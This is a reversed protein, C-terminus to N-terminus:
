QQAGEQRLSIGTLEELRALATEHDALSQWYEEDLHLLDLFSALLAQFDQRNSQYDALGSEFEARTQPLLGGQYITLLKATEEETDYATRLQFAVQQLQSEAESHSRNLEAEAEALEPRQKRSHYIPVRVGISLNYRARFQDPDTRDWSYQVNFDPYFDKHALDVQLKQKQVMQEAGAIDPSQNDAAALLDDFTYPLPTNSLDVAKINPSSQPRGLLQKLQSQANAIELDHMAFDRLLKTRELQARLLDQQTGMGSRYHADAAKEVQKLLEGDGNVISLTTSLYSIRFYAAKVEVLVSRRFSELQQQAVNADQKALEGKLRLKGPYPIEQSVGLGIYSFEDNSYGAFPRPSGVNSQALTFQPDPLTSVQTPVQKAAEWRQRAAEIQPNNKEAEALLEKLPTGPVSPAREQAPSAAQLSEGAQTQGYAGPPHALFAIGLALPLARWLFSEHQQREDRRSSM